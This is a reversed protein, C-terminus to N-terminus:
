LRPRSSEVRSAKTVTSRMFVEMRRRLRKPPLEIVFMERQFDEQFVAEFYLNTDLSYAQLAKFVSKLNGKFQLLNKLKLTQLQVAARSGRIPPLVM